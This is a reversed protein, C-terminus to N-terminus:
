AVCSGLSGQTDIEPFYDSTSNDISDPLSASTKRVPMRVFGKDTYSTKNETVEYYDDLSSIVKVSEDKEINDSGLAGSKGIFHIGNEDETVVFPQETIKSNEVAYAVPLSPVSILMATSLITSCLKIFHKKKFIGGQCFKHKNMSKMKANSSISQM